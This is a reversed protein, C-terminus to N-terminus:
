QNDIADNARASTSADVYDYDNWGTVGPNASQNTIEMRLADYEVGQSHNVHFTIVNDQGAPSLASTPWQFAVWQYTGSFGSRVAADSNKHKYGSWALPQGNLTVSSNLSAGAPKPAFWLRAKALQADSNKQTSLGSTSSAPASSHDASSACASFGPM